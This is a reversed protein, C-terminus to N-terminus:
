VMKNFYEHVLESILPLDFRVSHTKFKKRAGLCTIVEEKWSLPFYVAAHKSTRTVYIYFEESHCLGSL